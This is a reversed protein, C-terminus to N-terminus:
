IDFNVGFTPKIRTQNYFKKFLYHARLFSLNHNNFYLIYKRPNYHDFQYDRTYIETTSKYRFLALYVQKNNLVEQVFITKPKSTKINFCLLYYKNTLEYAHVNTLCKKHKVFELKAQRILDNYKLNQKIPYLNIFRYLRPWTEHYPILFDGYKDKKLSDIYDTNNVDDGLDQYTGHIYGTYHIIRNVPLENIQLSPSYDNVDRFTQINYNSSKVILHDNDQWKGYKPFNFAYDCLNNLHINREVRTIKNFKNQVVSYENFAFIHNQIIYHNVPWSSLIILFLWKWYPFKVVKICFWIISNLKNAMWQDLKDKSKIHIYKHM